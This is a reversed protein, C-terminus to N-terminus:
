SCEIPKMVEHGRSPKLCDHCGKGESLPLCRGILIPEPLHLLHNLGPVMVHAFIKFWGPCRTQVLRHGDTVVLKVKSFDSIAGVAGDAVITPGEPKFNSPANAGVVTITGQLSINPEPNVSANALNEASEIDDELAWGFSKRIEDQILVLSPKVPRM